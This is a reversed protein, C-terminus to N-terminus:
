SFCAAIEQGYNKMKHRQIKIQDKFTVHKAMSEYAKKEESERNAKIKIILVRSKGDKDMAIVSVELEDIGEPLTGTIEGTNPNFSLTEPLMSGDALEARYKQGAHMDRIKVYVDRNTITMDEIVLGTISFADQSKADFVVQGDEGISVGMNAKIIASNDNADARNALANLMVSELVEYQNQGQKSEDLAVGSFPVSTDTDSTVEPATDQAPPQPSAIVLLSYTRQAQAGSPDSGRVTITHYGSVVPNGSIVGTVPDISM